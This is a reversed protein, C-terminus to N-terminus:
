WAWEAAPRTLTYDRRPATPHVKRGSYMPRATGEPSIGIVDDGRWRVQFERGSAVETSTSEPVPFTVTIREGRRPARVSLYGDPAWAGTETGGFADGDRTVRVKAYGAWDPVRMRLERLDQHVDLDVRGEHPLHSLVTVRETARTLLLNVRVDRDDGTVISNWGWFLGRLGSGVCCAQVDATHGRGLEIDCVYDNPAGYGAFAGRVREGVRVHTVWGPEDGSTDPASEVWSLDLLQSEVLHNRLFREVVGWYGTHGSRALTVGTGILDVLSCSEHEYRQGELDGPTWGFRTAQTLAWDYSRRVFATLEHDGTHRAYRALGELTGLRTHFHGSRYARAANFSGDEHYVGSKHVILRAFWGCLELADENGTAQHYRLLPMILRGSFSAPDPALHLAIANPSPWGDPTYESAPYFWVDREKIAIRKLAAVHRDALEKAKPDGDSVYWTTLSLLVARQDILNANPAWGADPRARRYSLGDPGFFTTLRRRFGDEVERWTNKGTMHRALLCADLLRGHSSGYDWDGHRLAAPRALLDASFYPIGDMGTDPDTDPLGAVANMALEAREELLVTDPIEPMAM